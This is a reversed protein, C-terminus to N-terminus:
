STVKPAYSFEVTGVGVGTVTLVYTKPKGGSNVVCEMEAGLDGILEGPCNVSDPRRGLVSTLRAALVDEVQQKAMVQKVALDIVVGKASTVEVAVPSTLGARAVDCQAFDGVQGDLGSDCAASAAASAAAVRKALQERTLEARTIEYSATGNESGLSTLLVTVGDTDSFSVDCRATSGMAAALDRTCTVSRPPTGAAALKGALDSQLDASAIPPATDARGACGALAVVVGGVAFARALAGVM